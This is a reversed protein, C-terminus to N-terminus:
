QLYGLARLERRAEDDLELHGAESPRSARFIEGAAPLRGDIPTWGPEATWRAVALPLRKAAGGAAPELYLERPRRAAQLDFVLLAPWGARRPASRLEAHLPHWLMADWLGRPVLSSTRRVQVRAGDAPLPTAFGEGDAWVVSAQLRALLDLVAPPAAPPVAIATSGGGDGGTEAGATWPRMMGRDSGRDYHSLTSRVRDLILTQGGRDLRYRREHLETLSNVGHVLIPRNPNGSEALKLLSRGPLGPDAAGAWALLTPALDLSTAPTLIKRGVEAEGGEGEGSEALGGPPRVLLPVRVNEDFVKGGAHEYGGHEGFEEGHDSTVLVATDALRGVEALELLWGGLYHDARAVGGDYFAKARRVQAPDPPHTQLDTFVNITGTGDVGTPLFPDAFGERNGYPQHTEYTHVFLLYPEFGNGELWRKARQVVEKVDKPEWPHGVTWDWRDFGAALGWRPHLFGGDTIAVTHYGMGRLRSAVTPTGAALRDQHRLLGHQRPLLGTFMSAHSPLTWTSSSLARDFVLADAAFRDLNPTVDQEAGYIGLRDARLTDISVLLLNPRSPEAPEGRILLAGAWGVAGQPSALRLRGRTAESIEIRHEVWTGLAPEVRALVRENGDEDLLSLRGQVPGRNASEAKGEPEGAPEADAAPRPTTTAFALRDGPRLDVDVEWAIGPATIVAIRQSLGARLPSPREADVPGDQDAFHWPEDGGPKGDGPGADSAVPRGEATVWTALPLLSVSPELSGGACSWPGGCSTLGATVLLAALLGGLRRNM